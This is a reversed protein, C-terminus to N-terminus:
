YISMFPFFQLPGMSPDSMFTVGCKFNNTLQALFLIYILAGTSCLCPQIVLQFIGKEQKAEGAPDTLSAIIERKSEM